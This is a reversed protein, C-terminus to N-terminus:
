VPEKFADSKQSLDLYAYDSKHYYEVDCIFHLCKINPCSKAEDAKQINSNELM